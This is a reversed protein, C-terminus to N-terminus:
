RPSEVLIPPEYSFTVIGLPGSPGVDGTSIFSQYPDDLRVESIPSQVSVVGLAVAVAPAQGGPVFFSRQVTVQGQVFGSYGNYQSLNAYYPQTLDVSLSTGVDTDAVLDQGVFNPTEGVEIFSSLMVHGTLLTVSAVVQVQFSYTFVSREAPPPFHILHNWSQMWRYQLIPDYPESQITAQRGVALDGGFLIGGTSTLFETRISGSTPNVGHAIAGAGQHFEGMSLTGTYSYRWPGIPNFRVFPVPLGAGPTHSQISAAAVSTGNWAPTLKTLEAMVQDRRALIQRYKATADQGSAVLRDRLPTFNRLQADHGLLEAQLLKREQFGKMEVGPHRTLQVTTTSM